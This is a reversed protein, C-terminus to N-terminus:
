CKSSLACNVSIIILILHSFWEKKELRCEFNGVDYSIQRARAVYISHLMTVIHQFNRLLLLLDYNKNKNELPSENKKKKKKSFAESALNM